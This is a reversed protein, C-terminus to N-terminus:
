QMHGRQVYHGEIVEVRPVNKTREFSADISWLERWFGQWENNQHSAIKAEDFRFPMAHVQVQEQGAILAAEVILYIDEIAPDTMAYCGISGCGGHVMLYSGTRGRAADYINPFGLNFALHSSSMANLQTKGVWYIGEPAQRDGERLKPGLHGSYKCIAYTEYLRYDEGSKIWLELQSTEKFIRIFVPSGLEFGKDALKATLPALNRAKVETLRASIPTGDPGYKSPINTTACGTLVLAFFSALVFKIIQIPNAM